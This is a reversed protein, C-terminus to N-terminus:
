GGDEDRRLLAFISQEAPDQNAAGVPQAVRDHGRGRQQAQAFFKGVRVNGQQRRFFEAIQPCIMRGDAFRNRKRRVFFHKRDAFIARRSNQDRAPAAWNAGSRARLRAPRFEAVCRNRAVRACNTGSGRRAAARPATFIRCRETPSILFGIACFGSDLIWFGSIAARRMLDVLIQMQSGRQAGARFRHRRLQKHARAFNFGHVFFEAQTFDLPREQPKFGPASYPGALRQGTSFNM